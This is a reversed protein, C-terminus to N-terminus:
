RGPHARLAARGAALLVTDEQPPHVRVCLVDRLHRELPHHRTLAANGLAAVATQVATTVARAILMKILSLHESAIIEGSEIRRLIGELLTEAQVIQAEIEGAVTRIRDTDAIPHGLAAPVRTRAFDAFASRAARAVGVYLAVHGFSTPGAAAAPDRYVGDRFPIEILNESPVVINAYTVDHTNSARLGLHDWTDHWTIGDSDAPVIFHGVRVPDEDTRAWVLHYALAAGGTAFSKRGNIIWGEPTRHAITAPLGGRAPAGLEPEARIVNVLTPREASRHVLETYLAEPWSNNVAQAQHTALTNAAILAVSPDGEGIAALIRVVERHALEPGGYREAVTATLYGGRHAAALGAEPIAASRDYQAATTAIEATLAALAHPSTGPVLLTPRGTITTM